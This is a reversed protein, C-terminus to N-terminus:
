NMSKLIEFLAEPTDALKEAGERWLTERSRFGWTVAVLECGVNEATRVDVESDGIYVAEGVSGGLFRLTEFVSDPAPKKRVGEREGVVSDFVGPFYHAMLAKAPADSKNTVVGLKAGEAKLRLLLETIGDYEKTLVMCHTPYYAKFAAFVRDTQAPDTGEPVAREVLKRIGNGVFRRVEDPSRAPLSESSLAFNVAARLDGLTDLLTGDLDFVIFKKM